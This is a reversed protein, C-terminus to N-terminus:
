FVSNNDDTGQPLDSGSAIYYIGVAFFAVTMILLVVLCAPDNLKREMVPESRWTQCNSNYRNRYEDYKQQLVDTM